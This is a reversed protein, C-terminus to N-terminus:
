RCFIEARVRECERDIQEDIAGRQRLLFATMGPAVEGESAFVVNAGAERLKQSKRLYTRPEPRMDGPDLDRAAKVITDAPARSAAIIPGTRKNSETTTCCRGFPVCRWKGYRCHRTDGSDLALGRCSRRPRLADKRLLTHGHARRLQKPADIAGPTFPGVLIGAQLYGVMASLRLKQTAFGLGLATTLGGTLTLILDINHPM